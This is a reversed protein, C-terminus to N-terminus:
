RGACLGPVHAFRFVRLKDASGAARVGIVKLNDVYGTILAAGRMTEAARQAIFEWRKGRPRYTDYRM